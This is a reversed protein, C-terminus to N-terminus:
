GRKGSQAAQNRRSRAPVRGPRKKEQPVQSAMTRWGITRARLFAQVAARKPIGAQGGTQMAKLAATASAFRLREVLPLGWVLGAAYAGHFVDGCGTTDRAQVKFAPLHEARRGPAQLYWCGQAGCTVVVVARQRTWLLETARRPASARTYQRAFEFSVVLHDVLALLEDFRPVRFSEFDAVVAVGAARALSAARIMGPIGFRDVLLVRASRIRRAPPLRPDAGRVQRAEYFINRTQRQEDVLIVSRVPGAEPRLVVPHLDVKERRLTELVFRSGDDHGLTGAFACRLGLRAATVLATATLGGCHRERRRVEMKADAAPYRPLFLIDDVATCGLGLVDCSSTM